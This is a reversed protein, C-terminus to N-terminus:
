CSWIGAESPYILPLPPIFPSFIFSSLLFRFLMLGQEDLLRLMTNHSTKFKMILNEVTWGSSLGVLFFFFPPREGPGNLVLSSQNLQLLSNPTIVPFFGVCFCVYVEPWACVCVCVGPGSVQTGNVLCMRGSLVECFPYPPTQTQLSACGM